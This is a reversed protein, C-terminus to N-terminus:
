SDPSRALSLAVGVERAGWEGNFGEQGSGRSVARADAIVVVLFLCMALAVLIGSLMAVIIFAKTQRGSLLYATLAITFLPTSVVAVVAQFWPLTNCRRVDSRHYLGYIAHTVWGALNIHSHAHSLRFDGGIGMVRGMLM